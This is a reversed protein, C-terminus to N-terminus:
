GSRFFRAKPQEVEPQEHVIQLRARDSPSLGLKSAAKDFNKWAMTALMVMRYDDGEGKEVASDYRRWLSWWRCAGSLLCSDAKDLVGAPLTAIVEYWVSAAM